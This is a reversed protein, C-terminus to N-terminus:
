IKLVKFQNNLRSTSLQKLEQIVPIKYCLMHLFTETFKVFNKGIFFHMLYSAKFKRTEWKGDSFFWNLNKNSEAKGDRKRFGLERLM